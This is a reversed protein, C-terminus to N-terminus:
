INVEAVMCGFYKMNGTLCSGTTVFPTTTKVTRISGPSKAHFRKRM